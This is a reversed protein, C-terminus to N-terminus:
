LITCTKKPKPTPKKRDRLGFRIADDFVAKLGHQTLASCELYKQAGLERALDEAQGGVLVPYPHSPVCVLSVCYLVFRYASGVRAVM